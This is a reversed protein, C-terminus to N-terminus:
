IINKLDDLETSFKAPPLSKLIDNGYWLYNIRNDLIIVAGRDNVTRILRGFGQKLKLIALPLMFESFPNKGVSKLMETRAEIIPESPVPFPIRTIVVCMLDDGPVDVGEWFSEAGFLVTRENDKFDKLIQERDIYPTHVLPMIEKEELWVQLEDSVYKMHSFNTFLIFTKGNTIDLIKKISKVLYTLYNEIPKVSPAYKPVILMSNAAYDFPSDVQFSRYKNIGLRYAIFEFSGSTSLTASTLIVTKTDFLTDKLVTNAEIPAASLECLYGDRIEPILESDTKNPKRVNVWNAWKTAQLNLILHNFDDKINMVSEIMSNIGKITKDELETNNKLSTLFAIFENFIDNFPNAAMFPGSLLGHSVDREKMLLYIQSFINLGLNLGKNKLNKVTEIVEDNVVEKAWESKKNLVRNYMNELIKLSAKKQFYMSFVDEIRHGEDFIVADYDPFIGYLGKQKLNFDTFFMAHNTVIVNSEQLEKRALQIYCIKNFPCDSGLCDDSDGKIDLWFEHPIVFPFESREGRFLGGNLIIDKVQLLENMFVYESNIASDFLNFVRRMCVYHSRGKALSFSLDLNFHSLIKKILPLDKEILQNQLTITFTSLVIKKEELLSYLSAAIAYGLSKGTGTGAEILGNESNVLCNKIENAMQIQPQRPEYGSFYKSLLGNKSFIHELKKDIDTM